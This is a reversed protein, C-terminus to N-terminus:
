VDLVGGFGCLMGDAMYRLMVNADPISKWRTYEFRSDQQRTYVSMVYPNRNSNCHLDMRFHLVKLVALKDSVEQSM